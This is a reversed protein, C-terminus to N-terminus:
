WTRGAMSPPAVTTSAPSRRISSPPSSRASARSPRELARPYPRGPYPGGPPGSAGLVKVAVRREFADDAREALYVTGMGGHGIQHVIRYPGIREGCAPQRHVAAEPRAELDLHPPRDLVGQGEADARLLAELQRRMAPDGECARELFRSQEEPGRDLAAQFLEDLRQWREPDM